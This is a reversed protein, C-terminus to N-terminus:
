ERLEEVASGAPNKAAGAASVGDVCFSNGLQRPSEGAFLCGSWWDFRAVLDRGRVADTCPLGMGGRLLVIRLGSRLASPAVSFRVFLADYRLKKEGTPMVNYAAGGPRLIETLEREAEAKERLLEGRV